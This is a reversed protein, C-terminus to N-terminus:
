STWLEELMKVGSDALFDGAPLAYPLMTLTYRYFASVYDLDRANPGDPVYAVSTDNMYGCPITFPISSQRKVQRGIGLLPECPMGFIGADGIRFAITRLTIATPAQNMREETHFDLAWRLWNRIPQILARRYPVSM